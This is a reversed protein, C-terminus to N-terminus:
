GSRCRPIQKEHNASEEAKRRSHPMDALTQSSQTEHFFPTRQKMETDANVMEKLANPNAPPPPARVIESKVSAPPPQDSYVTQGKDDVWKYMTAGAPGAAGILGIVLARVSGASRAGSASSRRRFPLRRLSFAAIPHHSM